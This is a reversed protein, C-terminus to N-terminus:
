ARRKKNGYRMRQAVLPAFLTALLVLPWINGDAFTYAALVEDWSLGQVGLGFGFEFLLTLCLWMMGVVLGFGTTDLRLWPALVFALVFIVLSLLLGSIMFAIPLPFYALLIMERLVGNGMAFLLILLWAALARLYTMQNEDKTEHMRLAKSSRLVHRWLEGTM